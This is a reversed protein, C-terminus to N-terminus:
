NPDIGNEQLLKFITQQAQQQQLQEILRPKVQEFPPAGEAPRTASIKLMLVGNDGLPVTKIQGRTMSRVTDAIQPPLQQPSIWNSQANDSSPQRALLQEFSLGKRLLDQAADADAQSAFRIHQLQIQQTMGAYLQRAEADSVSVQEALHKAYANAYFEAELNALQAQIDPNKDLGARLAAAKLVETAQLQKLAYQRLQEADPAPADPQAAAQQQLAKVQQAIRNEAIQPAAALAWGATFAALTLLSTLAITKKKM